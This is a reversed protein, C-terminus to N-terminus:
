VSHTTNEAGNRYKTSIRKDFKNCSFSQYLKPGRLEPKARLYTELISDSDIDHWRRIKSKMEEDDVKIYHKYCEDPTDFYRDSVDSVTVVRYLSSFERSLHPCLM